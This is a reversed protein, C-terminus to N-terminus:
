LGGMSVAGGSLPAEEASGLSAPASTRSVPRTGTPIQKFRRQKFISSLFLFTSPPTRASKGEPLDFSVETHQTKCSGDSTA